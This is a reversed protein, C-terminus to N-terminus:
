FDVIKKDIVTLLYMHPFIDVFMLHECFLMLMNM